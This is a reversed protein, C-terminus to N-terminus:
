YFLNHESFRYFVIRSLLPSQVGGPFASPSNQRKWQSEAFDAARVVHGSRQRAQFQSSSGHKRNSIGQFGIWNLATFFHYFVEQITSLWDILWDM